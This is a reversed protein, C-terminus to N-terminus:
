TALTSVRDSGRETSFSGASATSVRTAIVGTVSRDGIISVRREPRINESAVTCPPAHGRQSDCFVLSPDPKRNELASDLWFNGKSIPLADHRSLTRREALRATSLPM